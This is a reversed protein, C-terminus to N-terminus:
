REKLESMVTYIVLNWCIAGMFFFFPMLFTSFVGNGRFFLIVGSVLSVFLILTLMIWSFIPPMVDNNHNEYVAYHYTPIYMRKYIFSGAQMTLYAIISYTMFSNEWFQLTLPAFLLIAFLRCLFNFLHTNLRTKKNPILIEINFAGRIM